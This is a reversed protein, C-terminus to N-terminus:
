LLASTSATGFTASGTGDSAISYTAGTISATGPKGSNVNAAHGTVTFDNFRGQGTSTLNFISNRASAVSGNPFELSVLWYSGNLSANSAAATPAPVAAFLDFTTDASGTETSSGLVAEPGFRANISAGSRIPNDLTVYGAPDLSYQGSGTRAAPAGTGQAQQGSFSYGGNGDFTISGILSRADTINGSADTVVSLQRFYYKTNISKNDLVQVSLIGIALAAGLFRIIRSSNGRKMRFDYSAKMPIPDDEKTTCVLKIESVRQRSVPKCSFSPSLPDQEVW